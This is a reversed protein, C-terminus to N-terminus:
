WGRDLLIDLSQIGEMLVTMLQIFHMTDMQLMTATQHTFLIELMGTYTKFLKTYNQKWVCVPRVTICSRRHGIRWSLVFRPKRQLARRGRYM